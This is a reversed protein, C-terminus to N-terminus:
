ITRIEGLTLHSDWSNLMWRRQRANGRSNRCIIKSIAMRNCFARIFKRITRHPTKWNSWTWTWICKFKRRCKTKQISRRKRNKKRMKPSKSIIQRQRSKQDRTQSKSSKYSRQHISHFSIREGSKVRVGTGIGCITRNEILLAEYNIAEFNGNV